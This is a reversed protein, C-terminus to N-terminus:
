LLLAFIMHGITAPLGVLRHNFYGGIAAFCLVVAIIEFVTM